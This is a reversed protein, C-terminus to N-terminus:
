NRLSGVLVARNNQPWAQLPWYVVSLRSAPGLYRRCLDHIRLLDLLGSKCCVPCPSGLAILANQQNSLKSALLTNRVHLFSLFGQYPLYMILYVLFATPKGNVPGNSLACAIAFRVFGAAM